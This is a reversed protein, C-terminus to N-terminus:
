KSCLVLFPFFLSFKIFFCFWTAWFFRDSHAPQWWCSYTPLLYFKAGAFDELEGGMLQHRPVTASRRDKAPSSERDQARGAASPHGSIHTFRGSCTLWSPWSMVWDKMRELNIFQTTLQLRINAGQVPPAMHHISQIFAQHPQNSGAIM